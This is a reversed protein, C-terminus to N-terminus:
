YAPLVPTASCTVITPIPAATPIVYSMRASVASTSMWIPPPSPPPTWSYNQPIAKHLRLSLLPPPLPPCKTTCICIIWILPSIISNFLSPHHHIILTHSLSPTHSCKIRSHITYLMITFCLTYTYTRCFLIFFFYYLLQLIDKEHFNRFALSFVSWDRSPCFCFCCNYKM